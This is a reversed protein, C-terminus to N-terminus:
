DKGIYTKKKLRQRKVPGGCVHGGFDRHSEIHHLPNGQGGLVSRALLTFRRLMRFHELLPRERVFIM